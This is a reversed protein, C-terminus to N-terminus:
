DNAPETAQPLSRVFAAIDQASRLPAELPIVHGVGPYRHLSLQTAATLSRVFRDALEPPLQPNAEGWLVLTPATIAALMATADGTTFQRLRELEASRNGERRWMHVFRELTHADLVDDHAVMWHVFRHLAWTPVLPFLIDAWGPIKGRQRSDPRKTGGSNLLALGAVTQPYKAAYHFAINGGLSSGVLIVNELQLQALLGRLLQVDRAVTYVGSPDPGTLGHGSLDYRLLTFEPQLAQVWLDWMGMEFFHSHILVLVPAKSTPAPHLRYRINVGDVATTQLDADGYWSELTGIPLDRWAWSAYAVYAVLGLILVTLVRVVFRTLGQLLTTM